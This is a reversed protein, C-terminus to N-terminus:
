KGMIYQINTEDAAVVGRLFDEKFIQILNPMNAQLWDIMQRATPSIFAKESDSRETSLVEFVEVEIPLTAFTQRHAISPHARFYTGLIKKESLGTFIVIFRINNEQLFNLFTNEELIWLTCFQKLKVEPQGDAGICTRPGYTMVAGIRGPPHLDLHDALRKQVTLGALSEGSCNTNKHGHSFQDAFPGNWAFVPM